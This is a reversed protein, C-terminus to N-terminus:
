AVECLGNTLFGCVASERRPVVTGLCPRRPPISEAKLTPRCVCLQRVGVVSLEVCFRARGLGVELGDADERGEPVARCLMRRQVPDKKLKQCSGM